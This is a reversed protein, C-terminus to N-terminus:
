PDDGAAILGGLGIGFIAGVGALQWPWDVLNAALFALVAPGFLWLSASRRARWLARGVGAVLLTLALAGAIGLEVAVELPLNHAFRVPSDGQNERSAVLFAGAGAGLIPREASTKAAASWLGLRGHTLGGDPPTGCAAPSTSAIATLGGGLALFALVVGAGRRVPAQEIRRWGFVTACVVVTGIAVRAGAPVADFRIVAAIAMGAALIM